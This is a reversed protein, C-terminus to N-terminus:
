FRRRGIDPDKASGHQETGLVIALLAEYRQRDKPTEFTLIQVGFGDPMGSGPRDGRHWRVEANFRVPVREGVGEIPFEVRIIAGRMPAQGGFALFLGEASFNHAVAPASKGRAWFQVPLSTAVRVDKPLISPKPELEWPALQTSHGLSVTNHVPPADGHSQAAADHRQAGRPASPADALSHAPPPADLDGDVADEPLLGPAEGTGSVRAFRGFFDDDEEEARSGGGFDIDFGEWDPLPDLVPEAPATGEPEATSPFPTTEAAVPEIPEGGSLDEGEHWSSRLAAAIAAVPAGETRVHEDSGPSQGFAPGPPPPADALVSPQSRRPPTYPPAPPPTPHPQAVPPSPRPAAETSVAVSVFADPLVTEPRRRKGLGSTLANALGQAPAPAVPDAVVPPAPLAPVRAGSVAVLEDIALPATFKVVVAPRGRWLAGDRGADVVTGAAIMAESGGPRRFSLTVNAGRGLTPDTNIFAAANSLRTIFGRASGGGSTEVSVPILCPSANSLLASM